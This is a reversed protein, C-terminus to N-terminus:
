HVAIPSEEPDTGATGAPEATPQRIPLVCIKAIGRRYEGDATRVDVVRINGDDGRFINSIRGYKWKLPPLDDEKLLVMTGEAVNDRVRTWRTRPHLGSLYDTSWRKWIRRLLEQNEQYRDLRTRPVESLDPEPFCTLPRHVLFHGPTLVELDNPDTSLPTLPRSNLCAEIRTLLTVFEDQSLVSNGVTRRFHQKFSKVAAEWLGGFNPSRPPIFKFIIGEDACRNVVEGQHQQSRFQKALEKLERATGRFNTANDCEILSPKARRAIFRHLAAIFAATSLDYVLEVHVAKTVLCVFIAVFCKIPSAKRIKRYQFPGCLDVGTNIFPLTPTVREPPLDGMLQELNRPRCRFCSVCSHVVSRALDRLRLPWFKERVCSALLQPGAHLNKLHYYSVISTTLPHRAPLIIPHKRCESIAANRLRGRLRLIGDVLIPTLTRLDSNSDVQGHKAVAALDKAFTEHQALRVLNDTAEALESTQLFGTRRNSRNCPKSNHYFRRLLAVIRVLAPFSSRISFIENPPHVQVPLSVAREELLESPIDVSPQPTLPPWFRSPQSLWPPGNWWSTTEQLQAPYMGRSIIDAPNEIGPVHAWIGSTTLHQVESVRNAIFTKWRSPTSRLWHLTIMSDTWFISKANLATSSQVKHYLHSLLLASSLELRPLCIRKQKKSDGLPAVKSKAALLRVAISGDTSVTRLYLCAGYAKESADCFGHVEISVLVSAPAAWRPISITALGDLSNRFELWHQQESEGLPDDWNKSSRWLTQVFLKALVVVPGILGLPDYLRATDSLVIRRSIPGDESWKPVSYRFEDDMPQWQLGLTKIPASPSELSLTTREDRLAEDEDDVGTLMDDMYFDKELILSALPFEDSGDKSLQQLCKTALYPASATGYTVTTLEFTRLPQSPSDRWLIRQLPYDAPNIRIQRFMKEIDAIIVFRHMRFRLIIALLDDQIVPGVMLAQNLSIGSDTPCSADFVVRLKTTTSDAKEVGHHPLYYSTCNALAADDCVERMHNLQHYEDIFSYSSMLKPNVLLRRELALFRRAAIEKSNGLQNLVLPRKPLTVVFRGSQDRFVTAAFHEECKSEEVSHTSNTWCSEIEWFRSLQENLSEASTVHALKPTGESAQNSGVKGSAVWGFVTNQLIPREPGLKIFGELLLDYYMEMGILLDIPGPEHFQPDALTLNSPINWPSTDICRVPLERTIKKLVHCRADAVFDSCRSGMRVLVAHYSVVISNGVGGIEQRDSHRPLQLKQVLNETVLSLQSASDLLARAWHHHGHNDFIKIVATQLLVTAPVTRSSGVLTTSVLTSANASPSQAEASPPTRSHSPQNSPCTQNGLPSSSSQSSVASTPPKTPTSSRDQSQQHLMTHHKQSCVRCASSSCNRLLHSSSFCNICLNKKKVQEFRQAVSLKQFVECKFPSHSPKSCFPCAGASPSVTTVTHVTNIKSKQSRFSEPKAPEFSRSKSPPLSQLVTLHTRLFQILDEYKPVETSRHHAEWQKLTSPDLRSCVMHALLVSWGKTPIGMKDIMCLNREFDDVLHMLSEYCERKMPEIAFLSDIYTKVVLKKNDFRRELLTWAVSYNAATHEVSEIVRKADKSLSAVLYSLKDISSLQPNSDILSKFTDRFTIWESVCGSFTPLKVEPLKIRSFANETVNVSGRSTSPVIAQTGASFKRLERTLFSHVRVFDNEFGQRIVRNAEESVRMGEEDTELRDSEDGYLEIKLRNAQFDSYLAEARQKWGELQGRDREATFNEVFHKLNTMTDLYFREQRSLTRLSPSM